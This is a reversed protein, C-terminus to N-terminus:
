RLHDTYLLKKQGYTNHMVNFWGPFPQLVSHSSTEENEDYIIELPSNYM